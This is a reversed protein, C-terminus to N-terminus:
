SMLSLKWGALPNRPAGPTSCNVISFVPPMSSRCTMLSGRGELRRTVMPRASVATRRAATAAVIPPSQAAPTKKDEEPSAPGNTTSIVGISAVRRTEASPSTVMSTAAPVVSASEWSDKRDSVSASIGTNGWCYRPVPLAKSRVASATSSFGMVIVTPKLAASAVSASPWSSLITICCWRRPAQASSGVVTSKVADVAITCTSLKLKKARVTPNPDGSAVGAMVGAAIAGVMEDPSVGDGVAVKVGGVGVGESVAMAVGTGGGVTGVDVGAGVDVEAGADVGTGVDVGTAVGTDAGVGVEIGSGVGVGTGVGVGSGVGVVVAVGEGVGVTVGVGM